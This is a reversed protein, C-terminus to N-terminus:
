LKPTPKQLSCFLFVSSFIFFLFFYKDDRHRVTEDKCMYVTEGERQAEEGRKREGSISLSPLHLLYGDFSATEKEESGWYGRLGEELSRTVKNVTVRGVHSNPVSLVVCFHAM